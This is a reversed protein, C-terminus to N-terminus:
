MTLYYIIKYYVYKFEIKLSDLEEAVDNHLEPELLTLSREYIDNVLLKTGYIYEFRM